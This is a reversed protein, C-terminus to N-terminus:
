DIGILTTVIGLIQQKKIPEKFVLYALPVFLIPYSGSIPGVISAMGKSLAFNYGFDALSLLVAAIIIIPFTGKFKPVIIKKSYISTAIFVIGVPLYAFYSTWFWGIQHAPIRIFTFFIGWCIMAIFAFIIGKQLTVKRKQIEKIDLTTLILGIFLIAISTIQTPALKEGFFLTSFVVVPLIYSAGIAGVISPNGVRLGQNLFVLGFFLFFGLFINFIFLSPTISNQLSNLGLPVFLTFLAIRFIFNWLTTNYAGIKRSAITGFIDGTGWGVFAVLAFIIAEM